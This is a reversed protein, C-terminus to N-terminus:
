AKSSGVFAGNVDGIILASVEQGETLAGSGAPVDILVNCGIMSKLIGNSQAGSLKIYNQGDKNELSGRLFRRQPSAKAFQDKFIAKIRTPLYNDKGMLKKIVPVVILDFTVLAAAPNGSLGLILKGDKAAALMPSGPKMAVRWFIIDAGIDLLADQVLDYDGVSVGGTTIVIDAQELSQEIHEAIAERRDPVIGMIIAETGLEICRAALSYQNSNYIKGPQLDESPDLLEDGTSLIAVQAQDFVSVERFGMSALLGILPSTILEGKRAILEGQRVDEGALIINSGSQLPEFVQITNDVRLIDEYKIVIDAGAPIPAGTMIKIAKGPGVKMTPVYGAPVEEIVEIKTPHSLDANKIDEARLAYGDLPSKNFSPISLPAYIDEAAIRGIAHFLSIKTVPMPQVKDLLLTQAEELLVRERM